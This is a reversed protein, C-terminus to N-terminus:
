SGGSYDVFTGLENTLTMRYVYVKYTGEKCGYYMSISDGYVEEYKAYEEESFFPKLKHTYQCPHITAGQPTYGVIEFYVTEGPNLKDEFISQTSAWINTDYYHDGPKEDGDITKVVRRSGTAYGYKTKPTINLLKQWWSQPKNIPGYFVRGSSGHLKTTVVVPDGHRDHSPFM